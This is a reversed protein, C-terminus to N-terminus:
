WVNRTYCVLGIFSDLEFFYDVWEHTVLPTVHFPVPWTIRFGKRNHHLPNYISVDLFTSGGIGERGWGPRPSLSYGSRDPPVGEDGIWTRVLPLCGSRVPTRGGWGGGPLPGPVLSKPVGGGSGVASKVNMEVLSSAIFWLSNLWKHISALNEWQSLCELSFSCHDSVLSKLNVVKRVNSHRDSRDM